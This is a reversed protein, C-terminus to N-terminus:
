NKSRRRGTRGIRKRRKHNLAMEIM